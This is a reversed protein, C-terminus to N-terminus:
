RDDFLIEIYPLIMYSAETAKENVTQSVDAM